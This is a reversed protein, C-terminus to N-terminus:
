FNMEFDRIGEFGRKSSVRLFLLVVTNWRVLVRELGMKNRKKKYLQSSKKKKKSPASVSESEVVM